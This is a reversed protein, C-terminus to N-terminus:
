LFVITVKPGPVGHAAPHTRNATFSCRNAHLGMIVLVLARCLQITVCLVELPPFPTSLLDCSLDISYARKEHKKVLPQSIINFAM